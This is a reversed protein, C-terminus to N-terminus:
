GSRTPVELIREESATSRSCGTTGSEVREEPSGLGLGGLRAANAALSFRENMRRLEEETRKRDTIDRSITVVSTVRGERDFEPFACITTGITSM